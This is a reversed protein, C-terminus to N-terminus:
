RPSVRRLQELRTAVTTVPGAPPRPRGTIVIVRASYLLFLRFDATLAQFAESMPELGMEDPVVEVTDQEEWGGTHDLLAGSLVSNEELTQAALGLWELEWEADRDFATVLFHMRLPIRPLCDRASAAALAPRREAEVSLRYCYVAVAPESLQYDVLGADQLATTGALIVQPVRPPPIVAEFRARLVERISRGVAALAQHGAM